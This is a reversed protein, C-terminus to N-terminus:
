NERSKAGRERSSRHAERVREIVFQQEEASLSSSSPLCIGRRNLDEAVEGGICEYGRYLPQTHMPKWVPRSEVNAADLFRILDAASMGFRAEDILFCSLWRTHLSSGPGAESPLNGGEANERGDETKQRRDETKQGRGETKQRGAESKQSRVESEQSRVGLKEEGFDAEPQPEIGPLDRFADRYREFVARRQQVRLELVELQGLAIGALVNSMRYNHGIESHVYDHLPNPDCAQTSWFRAKDVWGKHPSALMGGSTATIVKNGNFSFVSVDGFRGVPTGKYHAGLAEAADEVVQIGYEQCIRVIPDLDAPQGFLHVVVLAKPLRNIRARERIFGAFRNPDLNWSGRDSDVFVPRGGQYLIPNCSAVFTLTPTVVEDGPGIGVLRLALHIGATGSALALSPLGVVRTFREELAALNPGVTSLWNTSFAQKVYDFESGGMHPISLRIRRRTPTLPSPAVRGAAPDGEGLFMQPRSSESQGEPGGLVVAEDEAVIPLRATSDTRSWVTAAPILEGPPVEAFSEVTSHPGVHAHAGVLADHDIVAGANIVVNDGIVAGSQVVAGALIVVGKGLHADASVSARDSILTAVSKGLAALGEFIRKRTANSGIGVIYADASVERWHGLIKWRGAAQGYKVAEEDAFGMVEYRKTSLATEAVVRGHRGAGVIVLSNM